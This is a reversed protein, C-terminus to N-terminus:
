NGLLRFPPLQDSQDVCSRKVNGIPSVKWFGVQPGRPSPRGSDQGWRIITLHSSSPFFRTWTSGNVVKGRNPNQQKINAAEENRRLIPPSASNRGFEHKRWDRLIMRRRPPTRM